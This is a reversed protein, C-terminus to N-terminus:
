ALDVSFYARRAGGLHPRNAAILSQEAQVLDPRHM